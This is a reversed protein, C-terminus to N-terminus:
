RELAPTPSRPAWHRRMDDILRAFERTHRYPEFEPFRQTEPDAYGLRMADRLRAFALAPHGALAHYRAQMIFGWDTAVLSEARDMQVEAERTRGVHLLALAYLSRYLGDDHDELIREVFPIAEDWRGLRALIEAMGFNCDVGEPDLAIAQQARALGEEPRGAIGLVDSSIVLTIVNTPDLRVAQELDAVAPDSMDLDRRAQGRLALVFGRASPALDERALVRGFCAVADRVRGERHRVLGLFVEPWPSAPDVRRIAQLADLLVHRRATDLGNTWSADIMAYARLVRAEPEDPFRRVLEETAALAQPSEGRRLAGLAQSALPARALAESRVAALYYEYGGASEARLARRIDDSFEGALYTMQRREAAQRRHWVMRGVRRDTVWMEVQDVSDQRTVRGDLVLDATRADALTTAVRPIPLVVLDGTRALGVAVAQAFARGVTADAAIRGDVAFPHVLVTRSPPPHLRSRLDPSVVLVASIAAVVSLSLTALVIAARRLPRRPAGSELARSVRSLEHHLAAADAFRKRPDAAVCRLVVRVLEAPIPASESAEQVPRANWEELVVEPPRAPDPPQGTLAEILVQGLAYQDCRADPASGAAQDPCMYAPTGWVMGQPAPSSLGRLTAVGFDALRATGDETILINQPKIDRHVVGRAHAHALAGALAAGLHAVVAPALPGLSLVESLSEGDVHEMVMFPADATTELAFVRTLNPHSLAALSRAELALRENAGPDDSHALAIFKLVVRRGLTLDDALYVEGMAGVGLREVIAYHLIRGTRMSAHYPLARPIPVDCTRAAAHRPCGGGRRVPEVGAAAEPLM